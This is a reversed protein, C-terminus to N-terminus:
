REMWYEGEVQGENFGKPIELASKYRLAGRIASFKGTGGGLHMVGTGAVNGTGANQAIGDAWYYLRDGNELVYEGHAWWRGNGDVYDSSGRSWEEKVRVGEFVPPNEPFTRRLEFIRIEHDASVDISYQKTYKADAATWKYFVMKRQEAGEAIGYAALGIGIIFTLLIGLSRSTMKKM